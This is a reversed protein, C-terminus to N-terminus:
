QAGAERAATEGRGLKRIEGDLVSAVEDTCPGKTAHGSGTETRKNVNAMEKMQKQLRESM